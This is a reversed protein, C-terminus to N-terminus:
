RILSVSKIQAWVNMGSQLQLHHLSKLTIRAILIQDASRLRIMATGSGTEQRISDITAPLRNLISNDDHCKLAISVDRAPIRLRVKEGQILKQECLWLGPLSDCLSVETLSWHEDYGSVQGEIIAGADDGPILRYHDTFVDNLGGQAVSEGNEIIVVHDALRAIEDASHSVYIVPIKLEDRLKELIALIEQKRRHDLSALPEDMLLLDPQMLLARAIAIRQKEGGSLQAPYRNMLASIEMVEKLHDLQASNSPSPSRRIAYDLNGSATLHPFLGADQFVYGISRRHPPLFHNQTETLSQWLCGNVSVTGADPKELGAICRLLTTKGSGSSGTIATIGQGPLTLDVNLSFQKGSSYRLSIQLDTM